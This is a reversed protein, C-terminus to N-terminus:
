SFSVTSAASLLHEDALALGSVYDWGDVFMEHAKEELRGLTKRGVNIVCNKRLGRQPQNGWGGGWGGTTHVDHGEDMAAVQSADQQAAALEEAVQMAAISDAGSPLRRRSTKSRGGGSGDSSGNGSDNVHADEATFLAVMPSPHRGQEVLEWDPARWYDHERITGDGLRCAADWDLLSVLLDYLHPVESGSEDTLEPDRWEDQVNEFSPDSGYPLAQESLEYLVVGLSYWDVTHSYPQYPPHGAAICEPAIYGSTGCVETSSVPRGAQITDADAQKSVGFDVLRVHGHGDLLLNDPKLDRYMVANAHLYRLVATVELGVFHVQDPTLKPAPPQKGSLSTPQRAYRSLDGHWCVDMVLVLHDITQFAYALNVLLPHHLSAMLQREVLSFEEWDDEFMQALRVKSMVKMAYTCECDRKSVELVKGFAGEGLISVVRFWDMTPIISEKSRLVMIYQFERSTLFTAFSHQEVWHMCAHMPVDYLHRVAHAEMADVGDLLVGMNTCLERSLCELPRPAGTAMHDRYLTKALDANQLRDPERAMARVGQIFDIAAGLERRRVESSLVWKHFLLFFAPNAAIAAMTRPADVSEDIRVEVESPRQMDLKAIREATRMALLCFFRAALAPRENFTRQLHQHPLRMVMAYDSDCVFRKRTPHSGLLLSTEGIIEGAQSRGIMLSCPRHEEHLEIRLVGSLIVVLGDLVTGAQVVSMGQRYKRFRGGAFLIAWDADSLIAMQQPMGERSLAAMQEATLGAHTLDTEAFQRRAAALTVSSISAHMKLNLAGRAKKWHDLSASARNSVVSGLTKVGRSQLNLAGVNSLRATELQSCFGEASKAPLRLSLSSSKLEVQVAVYTVPADHAAIPLQSTFRQLKPKRPAGDPPEHGDAHQPAPAAMVALVDELHIAKRQVLVGLLTREICLHSSLLFLTAETEPWELKSNTEIAIYCPSFSLLQHASRIQEPPPLFFDAALDEASRDMLLHDHQDHYHLSATGHGAQGRTSTRLHSSMAHLAISRSAQELTASHEVLRSALDCALAHFFKCMVDPVVDILSLTAKWDLVGVRTPAIALSHDPPSLPPPLRVAALLDSPSGQLADLAKDKSTTSTTSTAVPTSLTTPPPQGLLFAMDHLIDGATYRRAEGGATSELTGELVVYLNPQKDFGGSTRAGQCITVGPPVECITSKLVSKAFCAAMTKGFQRRRQDVSEKDRSDSRQTGDPLCNLSSFSSQLLRVNLQVDAIQELCKNLACLISSDGHPKSASLIQGNGGYVGSSASAPWNSDFASQRRQFAFDDDGGVGGGPM